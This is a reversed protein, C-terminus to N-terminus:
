RRWRGITLGLVQHDQVAVRYVLRGLAGEGAAFLLEGLYAQEAGALYIRVNRLPVAAPLELPVGAHRLMRQYIARHELYERYLRERLHPSVVLAVDPRTELGGLRAREADGAPGEPIVEVPYAFARPARYTRGSHTIGGAAEGAGAAAAPARVVLLPATGGAAARPIVELELGAQQLVRRVAELPALGEAQLRVRAHPEGEIFLHLGAVERLRELVALVPADVELSVQRCDGAVELRDAQARVPGPLALWPLALAVVGLVASRAM